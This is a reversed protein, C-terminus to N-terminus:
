PWTRRSIACGASCRWASCARPPWRHTSATRRSAKGRSASAGGNACPGSPTAIRTTTGGATRPACTSNYDEDNGYLDLEVGAWDSGDLVGGRPALDLAAQIFGGGRDRTVRGALRICGRGAVTARVLTADSVGGMVRDTFGSWRVGPALQVPEVDFDSLVLRSDTVPLWM